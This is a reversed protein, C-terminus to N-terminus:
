KTHLDVPTQVQRLDGLYQISRVKNIERERKRRKSITMIVTMLFFAVIEFGLISM